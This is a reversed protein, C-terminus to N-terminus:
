NFKFLHNKNKGFELASNSYKVTLGDDSINLERGFEKDVNWKYSNFNLENVLENGNKDNSETLNPM